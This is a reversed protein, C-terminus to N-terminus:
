MIWGFSSTAIELSQILEPAITAPKFMNVPAAISVIWVAFLAGWAGKPVPEKIRKPKEAITTDM